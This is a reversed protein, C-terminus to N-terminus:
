KHHTFDDAGSSCSCSCVKQSLLLLRYTIQSLLRHSKAASEAGVHHRAWIHSLRTRVSVELSM